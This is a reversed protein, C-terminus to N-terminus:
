LLLIVTDSAGHRRYYELKNWHKNKLILKPNQKFKLTEFSKYMFNIALSKNTGLTGTFIFYFTIKILLYIYFLHKEFLDRDQGQIM